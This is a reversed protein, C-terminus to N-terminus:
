PMLVDSRWAGDALTYRCREHPGEQDLRLREVEHMVLYYGVASAPAVSGTSREGGAALAAVLWARSPLPSSQPRKAYLWDLQRSVLPRQRWSAHVVVPPMAALGCTLRYQVALSPLHVLLQVTKSEAFEAHKPSSRNVFLAFRGDVERLVLMRVQPEGAGVTACACLNANPDALSGAKARDARLLAAPDDVCNSM